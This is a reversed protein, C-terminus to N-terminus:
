ELQSLEKALIFVFFDYRIIIPSQVIKRVQILTKDRTTEARPFAFVFELFETILAGFSGWDGEDPFLSCLFPAPGFPDAGKKAENM